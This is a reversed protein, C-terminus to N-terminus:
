VEADPRSWECVKAVRAAPRPWDGQLVDGRESTGGVREGRSPCSCTAGYWGENVRARACLGVIAAMQTSPWAELAERHLHLRLRSKRPCPSACRNRAGLHAFLARERRGGACAHKWIQRSSASAQGLTGCLPAAAPRGVYAPRTLPARGLGRASHQRAGDVTGSVGAVGEAPKIILRLKRSAHSWSPTGASRARGLGAHRTRAPRGRQPAHKRLAARRDATRM